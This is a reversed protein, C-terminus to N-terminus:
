QKSVREGKGKGKDVKGKISMQKTRGDPIAILVLKQEPEGEARRAAVLPSYAVDVAFYGRRELQLLDGQKLLRM